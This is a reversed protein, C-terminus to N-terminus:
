DIKGVFRYFIEIEQTRTGDSDKVAEHVVIKEILTNLMEATLETPESYQEILAIWKEADDTTQKETALESKLKDIKEVLEQQEAQYKQSLMKFNYETIRESTWDEYLKVFLRDVEAKRKEAKALEASQKKYAKAAEKDSSKLLKSLLQKKDSHAQYIWDQLRALVYTYLTDYRIYHASCRGGVKGLKRFQSCNFFGTSCTKYQREAYSMSWGCDACKVLGAFIQTKGSKMPRRRSVIQKQVQNFVDKSIIAEHTNEVRFWESEPRRVSKKNKYSVNTQKGHVSNGIYTEDKLIDSVARINWAYAKEAPANEYIKAFQGYKKYNIYGATPIKEQILIKTIKGAGAGHVALDFIKEIIWSTDPDVALKNRNEPHRMYGLPATTFTREGAAFKAHLAIKVKRSTDKALWENFLNRFPVFDSLGKETDEGEAVAIYRIQKEPFVFELYYDMMVHERGFRSLDKTVVCNVKGTDIDEMMRQFAPREFNTGSWGDDVYEDYIILGNEQAFKQLVIRQTEISVSDGFNEDDRSLRMYLATSYKANNPQKM